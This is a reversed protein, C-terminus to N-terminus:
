EMQRAGADLWAVDLSVMFEQVVEGLQQTTLVLAGDAKYHQRLVPAVRRHFIDEGSLRLPPWDMHGTLLALAQAESHPELYGPELARCRGELWALLLRSNNQVCQRYLYRAFAACALHSISTGPESQSNEAEGRQRRRDIVATAADLINRVLWSPAGVLVLPRCAYRVGGTSAFAPLGLLWRQADPVGEPQDSWVKGPVAKRLLKELTPSRGKNGALQVRDLGWPLGAQQVHAFAPDQRRDSGLYGLTWQRWGRAAFAALAAVPELRNLFNLENYRASVALPRTCSGLRLWHRDALARLFGAANDHCLRGAITIMSQCWAELDAGNHRDPVLVRHLRDLRQLWLAGCSDSFAEAPGTAELVTGALSSPIDYFFARRNAGPLVRLIQLGLEFDQDAPRGQDRSELLLSLLACEPARSLELALTWGKQRASLRDIAQQCLVVGVLDTIRGRVAAPLEAAGPRALSGAAESGEAPPPGLGGLDVMSWSAGDLSYEVFMHNINIVPRAAIGFYRCLAVCAVSRHRCAGQRSAILAPLLPGGPELERECSFGRCWDLIAGLRRQRSQPRFLALLQQRTAPPLSDDQCGSHLMEMYYELVSDPEPDCEQGPCPEPPCLRQLLYHVEVTGPRHQPDPFRILHQGTYCDKRLQWPVAPRTTLAVVTEHPQRSPLTHWVRGSDQPRFIGYSQGPADREVADPDLVAPMVLEFGESGASAERLVIDGDMEVAADLVTLRDLHPSLGDQFFHREPRLASAGPGTRRDMRHGNWVTGETGPRTSDRATNKQEGAQWLWDTGRRALDAQLRSWVSPQASMDDSAGDAPLMATIQRLVAENGRNRCFQAMAADLPFARDRVADADLDQPFFRSCWSRQWLRYCLRDLVPWDPLPHAPLCAAQWRHRALRQLVEVLAEAGDLGRDIRIVGRDPDLDSGRGRLVCWPRQVFAQRNLWQCLSLDLSDEGTDQVTDDADLRACTSDALELWFPYHQEFAQALPLQRDTALAAALQRIDRAGPFLTLGQEELQQCLRRHWRVLTNARTDQPDSGLATSAIAQLETTNYDRLVLRRFRGRLAPSLSCRGGQGAPNVTAFLHFGPATGETLLANLEGELHGTAVLNMESIVLFARSNRAEEICARVTDWSAGADVYVPPPLDGGQQARFAELSLQLTADKGRGAPGEM